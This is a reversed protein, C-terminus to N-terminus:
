KKAKEYGGCDCDEYVNPYIYTGRGICGGCGNVHDKPKRGCYKCPETLSNFKIAKPHICQVCHAGQHRWKCDGAFCKDRTSM